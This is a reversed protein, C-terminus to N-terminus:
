TSSVLSTRWQQFRDKDISCGRIGLELTMLDPEYGGVTYTAQQIIAAWLEPPIEPTYPPIHKHYFAKASM